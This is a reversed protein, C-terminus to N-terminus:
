PNLFWMWQVDINVNKTYNNRLFTKPVHDWWVHIFKQYNPGMLCSDNKPLKTGDFMFWKKAVQDLWVRIVKQCSPGMLCSDNKPLKTGDFMNQCTTGDFVFWKKAHPGM